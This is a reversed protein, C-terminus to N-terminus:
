FGDVKQAFGSPRYLRWGLAAGRTSALSHPPRWCLAASLRDLSAPWNTPWRLIPAALASARAFLLVLRLLPPSPFLQDACEWRGNRDILRKQNDRLEKRSHLAVVVPSHVLRLDVGPEYSRPRLRPRQEM